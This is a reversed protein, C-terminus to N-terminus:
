QVEFLAEAEEMYDRELSTARVRLKIKHKGAPVDEPINFAVKYTIQGESELWKKEMYKQSRNLEFGPIELIAWVDRLIDKKLNVIKCTLEVEQGKGYILKDKMISLSFAPQEVPKSITKQTEPLPKNFLYNASYFITLTVAVTAAIFGVAESILPRGRQDVEPKSIMEDSKINILFSRPIPESSKFSIVLEEDPLLADFKLTLIGERTEEKSQEETIPKYIADHRKIVDADLNIRLNKAPLKGKNAIKLNQFSIKPPIVSFVAPADLKHFLSVKKEFFRQYLIRLLFGLVVAAIPIVISYWNAM